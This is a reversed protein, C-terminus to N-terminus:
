IRTNVNKLRLKYNSSVVGGKFHKKSNSIYKSFEYINPVLLLNYKHHIVQVSYLKYSPINSAHLDYM